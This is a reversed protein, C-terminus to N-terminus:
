EGSSSSRKLQRFRATVLLPVHVFGVDLHAPTPRIEVAGDVAIAIGDLEPEALPATEGYGLVEEALSELSMVPGLPNDDIATLGIM